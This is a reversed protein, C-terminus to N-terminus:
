ELRQRMALVILNGAFKRTTGIPEDLALERYNVKLRYRKYKRVALVTYDGPRLHQRQCYHHVLKGVTASPGMAYYVEKSLGSSPPDQIQHRVTVRTRSLVSLQLRCAGGPGVAVTAEAKYFSAADM